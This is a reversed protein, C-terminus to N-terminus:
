KIKVTRPFRMPEGTEVRLGREGKLIDKVNEMFIGYAKLLSRFDEVDHEVLKRYDFKNGADFGGQPIHELEHLVTYLQDEYEDSDFRTSWFEICYDFDPVALSWPYRNARIRALHGSSPNMFGVLLIKKIRIHGLITPFLKKVKFLLPRYDERVQWIKARRGM